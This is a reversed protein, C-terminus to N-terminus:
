EDSENAIAEEVAKQKKQLAQVQSVLTAQLYFPTSFMLILIVALIIAPIIHLNAEDAIGGGAAMGLYCGITGLVIYFTKIVSEIKPIVYKYIAYPVVGLLILPIIVKM